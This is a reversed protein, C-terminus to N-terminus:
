KPKVNRSVHPTHYEYYYSGVAESATEMGYQEVADAWTEYWPCLCATLYMM